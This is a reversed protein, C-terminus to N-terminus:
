IYTQFFSFRERREHQKEGTQEIQKYKANEQLKDTREKINFSEKMIEKYVAEANKTKWDLTDVSWNVYSVGIEEGLARIERCVQWGDLKPLMVDLLVIDPQEKEFLTIAEMGDHALVTEYKEKELVSQLISEDFESCMEFNSM